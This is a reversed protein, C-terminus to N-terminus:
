KDKKKYTPKGVTYDYSQCCDLDSSEKIHLEPPATPSISFNASIVSNKLITPTM